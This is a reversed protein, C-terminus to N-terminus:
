TNSFFEIVTPKGAALMSGFEEMSAVSTPTTRLVLFGTGVLGFLVFYFANEQM